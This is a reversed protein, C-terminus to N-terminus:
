DGGAIRQGAAIRWTEVLPGRWEAVLQILELVAAPDMVRLRASNPLLHTIPDEGPEAEPDPQPPPWVIDSM